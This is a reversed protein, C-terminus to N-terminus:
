DASDEAASEEPTLSLDLVWGGLQEVEISWHTRASPPPQETVKLRVGVDFSEGPKIVREKPQKAVRWPAEADAGKLTVPSRGAVLTVHATWAQGRRALRGTLKPLCVERKWEARVIMGLGALIALGLLYLHAADATPPVSSPTEVPTGAAAHISHDLDDVLLVVVNLRWLDSHTFPVGDSALRSADITENWETTINAQRHFASSWQYHQVVFHSDPEGSTPHDVTLLLRLNVSDPLDEIPTIVVEIELATPEEGGSVRVDLTLDALEPQPDNEPSLADEGGFPFGEQWGSCADAGLAEARQEGALMAGEGIVWVLQILGEDTMHEYWGECGSEPQFWERVPEREASASGVPALLLAALLIHLLRRLNVIGDGSRAAM